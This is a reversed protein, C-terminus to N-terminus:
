KKVILDNKVASVGAVGAAVEGARHKSEASDVFGSLQVTEKFTTVTIQLTKLTPEALIASKVKGTIVSNDVYEGPGERTRTSACGLVASGSVALGAVALLILSLKTM